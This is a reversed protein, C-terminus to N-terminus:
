GHWITHMFDHYPKRTMGREIYTKVSFYDQRIMDDISLWLGPLAESKIIGEDDPKVPKYRGKELRKFEYSIPNTDYVILCEKVGAKEYIACEDIAEQRNQASAAKLIFNPPGKFIQEDYDPQSQKYKGKNVMVMLDPYIVNGDKLKVAINTCAYLGPTNMRYLNICTILDTLYASQGISYNKM